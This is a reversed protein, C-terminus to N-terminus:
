AVQADPLADAHRPKAPGASLASIAAIAAFIEAIAGQKGAVRTVATVGGVQDGIGAVHERQRLIAIVDRGSRKQTGAQDAPARQLDGAIALLETQEPETGGRMDDSLNCAPLTPLHESDSPFAVVRRLRKGFLEAR